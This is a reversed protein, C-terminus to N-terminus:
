FATEHTDVWIAAVLAKGSARSLRDTPPSPDSHSAPSLVSTSPRSFGHGVSISPMSHNGWIRVSRPLSQLGGATEWKGGREEIPVGAVPM